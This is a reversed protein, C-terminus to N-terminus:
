KMPVVEPHNYDSPEPDPWRIAHKMPDAWATVIRGDNRKIIYTVQRDDGQEYDAYDIQIGFRFHKDKGNHYEIKFLEGDIWQEGLFDEFVLTPTGDDNFRIESPLEFSGHEDTKAEKKAHGTKNLKKQEPLRIKPLGNANTHWEKTAM